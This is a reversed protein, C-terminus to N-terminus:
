RARGRAVAYVDPVPESFIERAVDKSVPVLILGDDLAQLLWDEEFSGVATCTRAAPDIAAFILDTTAM